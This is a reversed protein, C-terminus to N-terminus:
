LGYRLTSFREKEHTTLHQAAFDWFSTTPLEVTLNGSVINKFVSVTKLGHSLTSEWCSCLRQVRCNVFSANKCPIVCNCVTLLFLFRWYKGSIKKPPWYRKIKAMYMKANKLAIWWINSYCKVIKPMELYVVVWIKQTVYWVSLVVFIYCFHELFSMVMWKLLIKM